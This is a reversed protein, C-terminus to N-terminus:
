LLRPVVIDMIVQTGRICLGAALMTVAAVVNVIHFSFKFLQLQCAQCTLLWDRVGTNQLQATMYLGSTCSEHPSSLGKNADITVVKNATVILRDHADAPTGSGFWSGFMCFLLLSGAASVLM